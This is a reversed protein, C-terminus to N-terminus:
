SYRRSYNRRWVNEHRVTGRGSQELQDTSIGLDFLIADVKRTVVTDLDKFNVHIADTEPNQDIAIVEITPFLRQVERSHGGGGYTGDIFIEGPKLNLAEISEHLLVPKHKGSMAKAFDPM